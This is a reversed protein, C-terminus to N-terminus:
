TLPLESPYSGSPSAQRIGAAPGQRAERPSAPFRSTASSGTERRKRIHGGAELSGCTQGSASWGSVREGQSPVSPGNLDSSLYSIFAPKNFRSRRSTLFALQRDNEEDPSFTNQAITRALRRGDTESIGSRFFGNKVIWPQFERFTCPRRTRTLLRYKSTHGDDSCHNEVLRCGEGIRDDRQSVNKRLLHLAAAPLGCGSCRRGGNRDPRCARM